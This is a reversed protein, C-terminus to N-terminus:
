KVKYVLVSPLDEDIITAMEEETKFRELKLKKPEQKINSAM